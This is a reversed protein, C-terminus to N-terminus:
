IWLTEKLSTCWTTNIIQRNTQNHMRMAHLKWSPLSHMWYSFGLLSDPVFYVIFIERTFLAADLTSPIHGPGGEETADRKWVILLNCFWTDISAQPKLHKYNIQFSLQMMLVLECIFLYHKYVLSDSLFLWSLSM